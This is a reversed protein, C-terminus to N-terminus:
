KKFTIIKKEETYLSMDITGKKAKGSVSELVAPVNEIKGKLEEKSGLYIKYKGSKLTIDNEGDFHIENIDLQYAAILKTLEVITDFYDGKVKIKENPVVEEFKVGTIVPVHEFLTKRSEMAVGDENFYFYRNMYKLVGSRLKEEVKVTLVHHKPCSMSVEKIFPLYTQHFIRHQATMVLTNPVYDGRQIAEVVEATQYTYNGKVEFSDLSYERFVYYSLAGAAILILATVSLLIRRRKRKRQIQKLVESKM